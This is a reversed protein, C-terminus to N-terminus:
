QHRRQDGTKHLRAPGVAFVVVLFAGTISSDRLNGPLRIPLHSPSM